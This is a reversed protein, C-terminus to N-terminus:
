MSLPFTIEMNLHSDRSCGDFKIQLTFITDPHKLRVTMNVRPPYVRTEQKLKLKRMDDKQFDIDAARIQQLSVNLLNTCVCNLNQEYRLQSAILLYLVIIKEMLHFLKSVCNKLKRLNLPGIAYKRM